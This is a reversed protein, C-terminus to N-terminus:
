GGRRRSGDWAGVAVLGRRIAAEAYEPQAAVVWSLDLAVEKISM